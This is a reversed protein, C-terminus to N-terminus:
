KVVMGRRVKYPNLLNMVGSFRLASRGSPKQYELEVSAAQLRQLSGHPRSRIYSSLRIISETHIVDPALPAFKMVMETTLALLRVSEAADINLEAALELATIVVAM